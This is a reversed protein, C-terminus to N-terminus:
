LELGEGPLEHGPAPLDDATRGALSRGTQRLFVAGGGAAPPLTAVVHVEGGGLVPPRQADVGDIGVGVADRGRVAFGGGGGEDARLRGPVVQQQDGLISSASARGGHPADITPVATPRRTRYKKPVLDSRPGPM